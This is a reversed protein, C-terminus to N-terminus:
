KYPMFEQGLVHLTTFCVYNTNKYHQNVGTQRVELNTVSSIKFFYLKRVNRMFLCEIKKM